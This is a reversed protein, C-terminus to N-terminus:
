NKKDGLDGLQKLQDLILSMLALKFLSNQPSFIGQQSIFHPRDQLSNGKKGKPFREKENDTGYRQPSSRSSNQPSVPFNIINM